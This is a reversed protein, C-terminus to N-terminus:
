LGDLRIVTSRPKNHCGNNVWKLPSGQKCREDLADEASSAQLCAFPMGLLQVHGGMTPEGSVTRYITPLHDNAPQDLGLSQRPEPHQILIGNPRDRVSSRMEDDYGAHTIDTAGWIKQYM